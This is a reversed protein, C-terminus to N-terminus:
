AAHGKTGFGDSAGERHGVEIEVEGGLQDGLVGRGLAAGRSQEVARAGRRHVADKALKRTQEVFAVQQHEVVCLHHLGAEEALLGTTTLEFHQDFAHQQGKLRAVAGGVLHHSVQAHALLRLDPAPQVHGAAQTAAPEIGNEDAAPGVFVALQEAEAQV